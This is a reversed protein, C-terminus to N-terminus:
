PAPNSPVRFDMRRRTSRPILNILPSNESTASETAHRQADRSAEGKRERNVKTSKNAAPNKPSAKRRIPSPKAHAVKRRIPAAPLPGKAKDSATRKGPPRGPKRKGAVKANADKSAANASMPGLRLPAPLRENSQISPPTEQLQNENNQTPLITPGLRLSVHIRSQSESGQENTDMEAADIFNRPSPGLRESAPRRDTPSQHIEKQQIDLSSRSARRAIRLATEELQGRDEAIKARELRAERESPDTCKTYQMLAGRAEDRAEAMIEPPISSSDKDRERERPTGRESFETSHKSAPSSVLEPRDMEKPIERYYSKRPPAPLYHHNSTGRNSRSQLSHSTHSREKSQNYRRQSSREEWVKLQSKYARHEHSNRTERPARIESDNRRNTASFHYPTASKGKESRGPENHASLASFGRRSDAQQDAQRPPGGGEVEEQTALIAKKEARAVLCEKLEHDLRLCKTCHKDLRDYVLTTTVEDGNPFEVVLSKILPLLGDVHVRMRASLKTIEAKEFRGIDKGIAKITAETWLHVPLGQVKIWFPILSPFTPSVTLEWRQLIIMWRAYHYPRQELVALLDSEREFQFQFLGNELDSGVPKFETKWHETFFPILSWVKQISKNTVRGILTLSHQRMLESNDPLPAKVRALRPPQQSELDLGKGKEASSLRRHAM